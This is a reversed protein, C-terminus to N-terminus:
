VNAAFIPDDVDRELPHSRLWAFRGLCAGENPASSLKCAPVEDAKLVLQVDFEFEQDVHLRALQVLPRFDPGDPLLRRFRDFALPGVRLRISSQEDWVRTGLMMSTGLGNHKGSGGITSRDSPDLQLWRGVFQHVEIPLDFYDQLLSELVIAPRHRQAFFGAYPLLAHDPFEHRNRLSAPGLGILEFLGRALLDEGSSQHGVFFRHKKWARYFLSVLRHNFLNLFAALTTDGQRARDIMLETYVHPLVGSPGTLGFFNVTMAPPADPSEELRAVASAPFSLSLHTLFRVVERAPPGLHGVAARDPRIRELLRVAQFFDFRFPEEFLTEELSPDTRRSSTAM